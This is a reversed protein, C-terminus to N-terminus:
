RFGVGYGIFPTAIATSHHITSAHPLAGNSKIDAWRKAIPNLRDVRFQMLKGTTALLQRRQAATNLCREIMFFGHVPVGIWYVEGWRYV